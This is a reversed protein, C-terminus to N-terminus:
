KKQAQAKESFGSIFHYPIQPKTEWLATLETATEKTGIKRSRKV